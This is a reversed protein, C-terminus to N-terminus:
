IIKHVTVSLNLFYGINDLEGNDDVEIDNQDICINHLVVCANIIRCAMEPSYHLVRHKLLCRFRMKLVGNVREIISRTTKHANNYRREPTRPQPEPIIPTLLWEQLQYGSDGLLFYDRHGATHLNRLLQQVNSNNWIYCDHTSGPYRACVNLIKMRSDCILQVNISHFGKRNVYIHEPHNPDEVHPPFIAIHTCDICGVIGPFDFVENFRCFALM